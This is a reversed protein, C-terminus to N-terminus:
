EHKDLENWFGTYNAAIFVSTNLIWIFGTSIEKSALNQSLLTEFLNLEEFYVDKVKELTINYMGGQLKYAKKINSIIIEFFNKRTYSFYSDGNVSFKGITNAYKHSLTNASDEDIELSLINFIKLRLDSTQPLKLIQEAIAMAKFLDCVYDNIEDTFKGLVSFIELVKSNSRVTSKYEDGNQINSRFRSNEFKCLDNIDIDVYSEVMPYNIFLQGNDNIDSFYEQFDCIIEESFNPDHREYDFVLIINTFNIKSLEIDLHKWDSVDKPLDIDQEKWDDGYKKVIKNYLNYINSEYIVINDETINIEPFSLLLLKLLKHKEHNGETIILTKNRDRRYLDSM